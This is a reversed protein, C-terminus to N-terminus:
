KLNDGDAAFAMALPLIVSNLAFPEHGEKVMDNIEPAQIFEPAVPKVEMLMVTLKRVGM